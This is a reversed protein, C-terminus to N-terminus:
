RRILEVEDGSLPQTDEIQLVSSVYADYLSRLEMGLKSPIDVGFKASISGVTDSTLDAPDALAALANQLDAAALKERREKLLVFAAAGGVGLM